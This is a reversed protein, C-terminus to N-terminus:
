NGGCGYFVHAAWAAASAGAAKRAQQAMQLAVAPSAGTRWVRFFAEELDGAAVPDVHTLPAIVGRGGAQLIAGPFGGLDSRSRSRFRGSQCANLFTLRPAGAWGAVDASTVRLNDALQLQSARSVDQVMPDIVGHCSLALVDHRGAQEALSSPTAEAGSIMKPKIPRIAEEVRHIHSRFDFHTNPEVGSAMALCSELAPNPRTEWHMLLAVSPAIAIPTLDALPLGPELELAAFPALYLEGFPLIHLVSAKAALERLRDKLPAILQRSLDPVADFVIDNWAVSETGDRSPNSLLRTADVGKFDTLLMASPTPEDPGASLILTGWRMPALALIAVRKRKLWAAVSPWDPVSARQSLRTAVARAAEASNWADLPRESLAQVVALLMAVQERQLPISGEMEQGDTKDLLAQFVKLEAEAETLRNLEFLAIVRGMLVNRRMGPDRALDSVGNIITLADAPRGEVLAQQAAGIRQSFYEFDRTREGGEAGRLRVLRAEAHSRLDVSAVGAAFAVAREAYTLAQVKDGRAEHLDAWAGLVAVLSDPRQGAEKEAKPLILLPSDVDGLSQKFEAALMYLEARMASHADRVQSLAADIRVPLDSLNQLGEELAGTTQAFGFGHVATIAGRLALEVPRGDRLAAQVDELRAAASAFAQEVDRLLSGALPPKYDLEERLEDRVHGTRDAILLYRFRNVRSQLAMLPLKSSQAFEIAQVACARVRQYDGSESAKAAAKMRNQSAALGSGQRLRAAYAADFAAQAENPDSSIQAKMEILDPIIPHDPEDPILTEIAEIESTLARPRALLQLALCRSLRIQLRQDRWFRDADPAHALNMDRRLARDETQVADAELLCVELAALAAEPRVTCDRMAQAVQRFYDQNRAQFAQARETLSIM